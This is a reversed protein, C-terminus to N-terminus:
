ELTFAMSESLHVDKSRFTLCLRDLGIIFRSFFTKGTIGLKQALQLCHIFGKDAVGLNGNGWAGLQDVYDSLKGPPPPRKCGFCVLIDNCAKREPFGCPRQRPGLVTVSRAWPASDRDILPSMLIM